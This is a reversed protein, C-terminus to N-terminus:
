RRRAAGDAAHQQQVAHEAARGSGRQSWCWALADQHPERRLHKISAVVVGISELNSVGAGAHVCMSEPEVVVLGADFAKHHTLCMVLGNRADDSGGDEIPCLHAAELLKPETIFCFVCRPGYRRFVSFRFQGQGPRARITTSRLPRTTRLEFARNDDEDRVTRLPLPENSFAILLQRSRDDYDTVWGLRVHRTAAGPSPTIVVFLPLTLDACARMAAIENRDRDGRATVPYHYIVGDDFLDDAYHSGTHLVGVAVGTGAPTLHSTAEQDRFV